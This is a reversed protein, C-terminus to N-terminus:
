ERKMKIVVISNSNKQHNYKKPLVTKNMKLLGNHRARTKITVQMKGIYYNIKM